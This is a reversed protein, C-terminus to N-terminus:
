QVNTIEGKREIDPWGFTREVDNTDTDAPVLRVRVRRPMFDAPFLIDGRVVQFYKFAYELGAEPNATGLQSWSLDRLEGVGVGEVSLRIRGRAEPAERADHTLTLMFRWVGGPAPAMELSHVQLGEAGNGSAVLSEYFVLEARLDAIQRDRDALGQRTRASADDSVEVARELIAVRERLAKLESEAVGLQESLADRGSRLSVNDDGGLRYAINWALFLAAVVGVAVAIRIAWMRRPKDERLVFRGAGRKM